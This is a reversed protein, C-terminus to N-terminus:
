SFSVGGGGQAAQEPAGDGESHCTTICMQISDGISWSGIIGISEQLVPSKDRVIVNKSNITKRTNTM